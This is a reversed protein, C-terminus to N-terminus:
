EYSLNEDWNQLNHIIVDTNTNTVSGTLRCDEYM